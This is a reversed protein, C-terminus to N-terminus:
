RSIKRLASPLAVQHTMASNSQFYYFELVDSHVVSLRQVIMELVVKFLTLKVLV